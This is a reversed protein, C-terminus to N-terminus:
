LPVGNFLDILLKRLFRTLKVCDGNVAKYSLFCCLAIFQERKVCELVVPHLHIETAAAVFCESCKRGFSLGSLGRVPLLLLDEKCSQPGQGGFYGLFAPLKKEVQSTDM